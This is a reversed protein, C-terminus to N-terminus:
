FGFIQRRVHVAYSAFISEDNHINICECRLSYNEYKKDYIICMKLAAFKRNKKERFAKMVKPSAHSRFVGIFLQVVAGNSQFMTLKMENEIKYKVKNTGAKENRESKESENSYTCMVQM